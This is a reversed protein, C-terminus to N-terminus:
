EDRSLVGLMKQASDQEAKRRSSGQGEVVEKVLDCSCKVRFRQNHEEGKVEILEYKPLSKHKAQLIEQLETKSDKHSNELSLNLLLSDYWTLICRSCTNIDSDLYIAGVIAEMADALISDRRAGGTKMEGPGLLLYDSLDLIRALDALTDRKVLSARLRSMQGEQAGPFQKFLQAAIVFNVISDGLFEFRENNNNGMSRHSLARVLLTVDNFEYTLKQTLERMQQGNM